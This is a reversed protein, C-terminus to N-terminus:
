AASRPLAADHGPKGIRLLVPVTVLFTLVGSLPHLFTELVGIGYWRVLIVLLVLRVINSLIALPACVALVLWRRWRVSTTYAALSAFVVAAYLTSFGSCADTIFVSTNPLHLRFGVLYVPVGAMPALGATADAAIRRLVLQLPETFALPIPLMFVAFALPFAIAATRHKGLLLLSLGPLAMVLAIAALLGTKLGTDVVHIILAPVLFVFGWASAGTPLDRGRLAHWAFYGVIPPILLGHAQQWVSLTWREFLWAFTPAFLLIL